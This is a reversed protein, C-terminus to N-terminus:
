LGSLERANSIGYATPSNYLITVVWSGAGKFESLPIVVRDCRTYTADKIGEVTRTIKQTDKTFTATCTGNSEYVESIYSRVEINNDRRGAFSITPAVQKKGENHTTINQNSEDEAIDKKNQEAAQKDEKTAPDYNIYGDDFSSPDKGGAEISKKNRNIYLAYGGAGILLLLIFIAPILYKRAKKKNLNRYNM